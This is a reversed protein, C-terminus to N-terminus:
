KKYDSVSLELKCLKELSMPKYFYFGQIIDVHLDGLYDLQEKEEVGEAVIELELKHALSIIHEVVFGSREDKPIKKVFSYDLKIVNVPLNQIYSLSSYGTGFDDLAVKFEAAQLQNSVDIATDLDELMSSETLEFELRSPHINYRKCAALLDIVLSERNFQIPSLNISIRFNPNESFYEILESAEAMIAEFIAAELKNMVEPAAEVIPLFKGPLLIGKTPHNWRVLAEVGQIQGTQYNLKPQYYPIFEQKKIGRIVEKLLAEKKEIRESFSHDFHVLHHTHTDKAHQLALEARTTLSSNDLDLDLKVAGSRLSVPDNEDVIREILANIKREFEEYKSAKAIVAFKGGYLSYVKSTKFKCDLLTQAVNRILQDAKRFGKEKNIKQLGNIDLIALFEDHRHKVRCEEIFLMLSSRNKMNTLSDEFVAKELGKVASELRNKLTRNWFYLALILIAAFSIAILFYQVWSRDRHFENYISHQKFVAQGGTAQNYTDIMAAWRDPSSLGLPIKNADILKITETAEYRQHELDFPMPNNTQRNLIHNIIEEPHEIAYNWGRIVARRISAVRRPHNDLEYQTTALNDGYFDIDFEQPRFIDVEHGLQKLQFPENSVYGYMAFVRGDILKNVDGDYSFKQYDGSKLNNRLLMAEIHGSISPDALMLMKDKLDSIDKAGSSKLSMLVEPAHQFISAVIIIPSDVALSNLSESGLVAYESARNILQHLHNKHPGGEILKVSHGEDEFYGQLEAAYYGAFQFKHYWKLHISVEDAHTLPSLLLFLLTSLLLKILTM